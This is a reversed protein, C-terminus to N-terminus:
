KIVVLTGIPVTEFLERAAKKPLRICGHSAPYGPLAGEHLGFDGCSLRLFYPMRADYLTSKWTRHKDTVLFEGRPTPHSKRGSSIPMFLVIRDQHWLWAKQQALDIEIRWAASEHDPGIGMLCRMIEIHGYKGALWLAYTRHKKTMRYPDAGAALLDRVIPLHGLVTALMLGTFNRERTLYYVLRPDTFRRVFEPDAPVPLPTNPDLGAALASQVAARDADAIAEFFRMRFARDAELQRRTEAVIQPLLPPLLPAFTTVVEQAWLPVMTGSLLAATLRTKRVVRITVPWKM